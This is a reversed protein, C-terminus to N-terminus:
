IVNKENKKNIQWKKWKKRSKQWKKDNKKLKVQNKLLYQNKIYIKSLKILYKKGVCGWCDHM